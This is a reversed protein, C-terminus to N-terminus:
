KWGDIQIKGMKVEGKPTFPHKNEKKEPVDDMKLKGIKPLPNVPVNAMGQSDMGERINFDQEVLKAIEKPVRIKNLAEAANPNVASGGEFLTYKRKREKSQNGKIRGTNKFLNERDKDTQDGIAGRIELKQSIRCIPSDSELDFLYIEEFDSYRVCVTEGNYRASFESPLQYNYEHMGRKISIEGNIVKQSTKRNFLQMRKFIDVPYCKAPESKEYRENPSEGLGRKIKANYELICDVTIAVIQSYDPFRTSNKTYEDILEQQTRGTKMRTKIGQGIYGYHKIFHKEGLTRFSREIIAKRRPNSDKTWIIGINALMEKFYAAEETKHFAHSDSVIEHPLVGTNKVAIELAELISATNESEAIRYGIYKRSHADMVAIVVYKFYLEQTGNERTRKAYIPIEWGDIQWQTNRNLAPVIKAYLGNRKESETKGIRQLDIHNRNKRYYKKVWSYSPAKINLEECAETLMEHCLVMDMGRPDCLLMETMMRYEDGFGPEFQRISRKDVAVSLVGNEKANKLATCFRNKTSYDDPYIKSYAYFLPSLRGKGCTNHLEVAKELVAARRGYKSALERKLGSFQEADVIKNIWVAVDPSKYANRLEGTYYNEFYINRNRNYEEKIGDKSPLKVRTPEPITDYNIYARGDIYKRKCIQRTSWSNLTGQSINKDLLYEYSVWFVQHKTDIHITKM